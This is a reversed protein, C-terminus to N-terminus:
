TLAAPTRPRRLWLWLGLAILVFQVAIRAAAMYPVAFVPDPRFFDWVHLPLYVACMVAFALGALARFRPLIVGTGIALEALGSLYVVARQPMWDPVIRFFTEPMVLHLIGGALMWLAIIIIAIRHMHPGSRVFPGDLRAQNQRAM